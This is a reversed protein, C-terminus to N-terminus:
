VLAWLSDSTESCYQLSVFKVGLETDNGTYLLHTESACYFVCAVLNRPPAVGCVSLRTIEYQIAKRVV